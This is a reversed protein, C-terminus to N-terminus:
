QEIVKEVVNEGSNLHIVDFEAKSLKINVLLMLSEQCEGYIIKTKKTDSNPL